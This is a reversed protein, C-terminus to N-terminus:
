KNMKSDTLSEILKSQNAALALTPRMQEVLAHMIHVYVCNISYM